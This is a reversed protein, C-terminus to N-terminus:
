KQTTKIRLLISVQNKLKSFNRESIQVFLDVVLFILLIVIAYTLNNSYQRAKKCLMDWAMVVLM